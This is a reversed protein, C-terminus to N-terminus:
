EEREKIQQAIFGDTLRYGAPLSPDLHEKIITEMDEIAKNIENRKYKV